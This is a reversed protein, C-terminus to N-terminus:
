SAAAVELPAPAAPASAPAPRLHYAAPDFRRTRRRFAWTFGPWITSNRGKADIYWSACGGESWVTGELREDIWRNYANQADSRVELAGVSRQEMLRLADAVYNAQSEIMFVISNHGLGTNPGTIRFFNPFGAITTGKYARPSGEFSDAMSRGHVGRIRAFTPSDTVHFGTAFVIADVERETGDSGVISHPRIEAVGEAVVDVNERCLAPYYDNSILIRKCGIEYDPELKARLKPDRVQGHLHALAIRKAIARMPLNGNFPLVFGERAWYIGARMALQAAPLARYVRRELSTLPRDRRPMVWPPTRQFLTLQGTRPAIQPVIQIASAGTGIVAVREGTLDHEHNWRASHFYTGEFSEIGPIAPLSPDSLPGTGDILVTATWNGGTTEIDWHGADEDWSADLLECGFRLHETVGFREACDRLYDWIEPQPSFTSSWDPNPAFSFSYLHSPVDCACGPYSNDRWTGGVDDAKELVVFDHIGEQKLRIAMGLGSFGSGVIAIRAHTTM